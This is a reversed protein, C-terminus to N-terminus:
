NYFVRQSSLLYLMHLSGTDSAQKIKAFSIIKDEHIVQSLKKVGFKTWAGPDQISDLHALGPNRWLPTNPSLSSDLHGEKAVGARWTKVTTRMLPTLDYWCLYPDHRGYM